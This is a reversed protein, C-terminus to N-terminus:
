PLGPTSGCAGRRSWRNSSFRPDLAADGVVFVDESRITHDCFQGTRPVEELDAGAKANVVLTDKAVLTVMAVATRFRAKARRCIDQLEQPAISALLGTEQLARLREAELREALDGM